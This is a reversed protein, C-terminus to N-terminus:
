ELEPEESDGDAKFEAGDRLGTLLGSMAAMQKDLAVFQEESKARLQELEVQQVRVKSELKSQRALTRARVQEYKQRVGEFVTQVAALDGVETAGEM